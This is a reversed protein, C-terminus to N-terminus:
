HHKKIMQCEQDDNVHLTVYAVIYCYVETRSLEKPISSLTLHNGTKTHRVNPFFINAKNKHRCRLQTSLYLAKSLAPLTKTRTYM